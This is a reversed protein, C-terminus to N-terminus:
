FSRRHICIDKWAIISLMRKADRDRVIVGDHAGAISTQQLEILAHLHDRFEGIAFARVAPESRVFRIEQDEIERHGAAAPKRRQLAQAM